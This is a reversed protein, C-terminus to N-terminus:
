SFYSVIKQKNLTKSLFEILLLSLKECSLRDRHWLTGKQLLKLKLCPEHPAHFVQFPIFNHLKAFIKNEQCPFDHVKIVKNHTM